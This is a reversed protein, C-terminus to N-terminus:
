ELLYDMGVYGLVGGAFGCVEVVLGYGVAAATSGVTVSGSGRLLAGATAGGGILSLDELKDLAHEQQRGVLRYGGGFVGGMAASGGCLMAGLGLTAPLAAVRVEKSSRAAVLAIGQNEIEDCARIGDIRYISEQNRPLGKLFSPLLDSSEDLPSYCIPEGQDNGLIVFSARRDAARQSPSEIQDSPPLKAHTFVLHSFFLIVTFFTKLPLNNM